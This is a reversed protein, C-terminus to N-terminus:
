SLIRERSCARDYFNNPFACCFLLTLSPLPFLPFRTGQANQLLTTGPMHITDDYAKDTIPSLSCSFTFLQLHSSLPLSCIYIVYMVKVEKCRLERVRTMAPLSYYHCVCKFFDLIEFAIQLCFWCM